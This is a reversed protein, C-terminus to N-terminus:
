ARRSASRHPRVPGRRRRHASEPGRHQRVSSTPSRWAPSYCHCTAPHRTRKRDRQLVVRPPNISAAQSARTREQREARVWFESLGRFSPNSAYVHGADGFELRPFVELQAHLAEAAELRALHSSLCFHRGGGFTQHHTDRREIDFRDPDAYAASDQNAM